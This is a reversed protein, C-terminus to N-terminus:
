VTCEGHVGKGAGGKGGDWPVDSSQHSERDSNVLCFANRQDATVDDGIVTPKSHGVPRTSTAAM